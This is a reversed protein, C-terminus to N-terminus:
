NETTALYNAVTQSITELDFGYARLADAAPASTGYETLGIFLGDEGLISLWNGCCGAEIVVRHRQTTPLVTNQWAQNQALFRERNPMSVVRARGIKEAIAVALSLESGTAILIITYDPPDLYVYGGRQIDEASTSNKGTKLKQRSLSLLNPQQARLSYCWAVITEKHDGPRWVQLNPILRLSELHEIPQHTPGDEGLAISDHTMIYTHPIGMIASMRIANRTYDSFVLFTASYPLFGGFLALGNNIAVMGFERAGYHILNGTYSAPDFTQSNDNIVCNSGSLDASGGIVEPFRVHLNELCKGSMQRSSLEKEGCHNLMDEQVAAIRKSWDAQRWEIKQNAHNDLGFRQQLAQAQEPHSKQYDQWKALWDQHLKKGREQQSWDDLMDQPVAFSEDISWGLQARTAQVEDVGLPAGHCDASGSKNPSGYGIRTNCIILSPQDGVSQCTTFAQDIAQHDVGDISEVVHWNCARFREATNDKFWGEVAGDISIKNSDYIVILNGLGWLGALSIAEQSIGEMLCGDGVIVYIRGDFLSTELNYKQALLKQALAMGVGNALGQGLPGTTCEVGPTKRYEPHGPTKSNFQRFARLDDLSVAFGTLYLLAYQLASCHGNSLIFRDRNLWLPQSPDFRLHKSWLVYAIDALGLPGGPHGSNAAQVQDMCLIRLADSLQAERNLKRTM